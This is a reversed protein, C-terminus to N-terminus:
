GRPLSIDRKLEAFVVGLKKLEDEKEQTGKFLITQEHSIIQLWCTGQSFFCIDEPFDDAQWSFISKAVSFFNYCTDIDSIKILFVETGYNFINNLYEVDYYSFVIQNRVIDILSTTKNKYRIFANNDKKNDILTDIDSIMEDPFLNINKDTVFFHDYNPLHFTFYDSNELAYRVFSKYADGKLDIEYQHGSKIYFFRKILNFM